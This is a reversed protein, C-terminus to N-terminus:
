VDKKQKQIEETQKRIRALEELYADSGNLAAEMLRLGVHSTQRNLYDLGPIVSEAEERRAEAESVAKKYKDDYEERIRRLNEKNFGM